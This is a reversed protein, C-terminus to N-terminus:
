GDKLGKMEMLLEGNGITGLEEVSGDARIVTAQITVTGFSKKGRLARLAAGFRKLM